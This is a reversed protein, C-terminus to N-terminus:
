RLLDKWFGPVEAKPPLNDLEFQARQLLGLMHQDNAITAEQEAEHMQTVLVARRKARLAPPMRREFPEKRKGRPPPPLAVFLETIKIHERQSVWDTWHAGANPINRKGSAYLHKAFQAPTFQGEKQVRKLRLVLDALTDEYAVLAAYRACATGEKKRTSVKLTRVNGLEFRLPALVEDWLRHAVTGKIGERRKSEKIQQAQAVIDAVMPAPYKLVNTLHNHLRKISMSLWYPKM